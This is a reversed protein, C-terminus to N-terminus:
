ASEGVSWVQVAGFWGEEVCIEQLAIATREWPVGFRASNIKCMRVVEISNEEEKQVKALLERM